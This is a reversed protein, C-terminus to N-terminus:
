GGAGDEPVVLWTLGKACFLTLPLMPVEKLGCPM